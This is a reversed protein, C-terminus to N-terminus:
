TRDATVFRSVFSGTIGPTYQTRGRFFDSLRRQAVMRTGGAAHAARHRIEEITTDEAIEDADDPEWLDVPHHHRRMTMFMAM